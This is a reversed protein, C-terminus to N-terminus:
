DQRRVRLSGPLAGKATRSGTVPHYFFTPALSAVPKLRGEVEAPAPELNLHAAVSHRLALAM